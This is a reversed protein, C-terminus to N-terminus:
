GFHICCFNRYNDSNYLFANRVAFPDESDSRKEYLKAYAIKSKGYFSLLDAPKYGKGTIMNMLQPSTRKIIYAYPLQGKFRQFPNHTFFKSYVGSYKTTLLYKVFSPDLYPSRNKLFHSQMVIEPGFYKRFVEEFIFKYFLQNKDLGVHIRKYSILKDILNEICETIIDSNIYRLKPSKKIKEIWEDNEIEFYSIMEESIVVGPNHFARFLESGFNGTIIYNVREGLKKAAFKYHARGFSASGETNKIIDLGCQLSDNKIYDNDLAIPIFDIGLVVAQHSALTLDVSDPSGFSYTIFDKNLYIGSAVLTRGDFGSTFSLAANEEPFYKSSTELFKEAVGELIIRGAAPSSVYYDAIDFCKKIITQDSITIYHNSPLLKVEKYITDETIAYNFLIREILYQKNLTLKGTYDTIYEMRSSVLVNKDDEFVYVPLINFVSTLVSISRQLKNLKIIYFFGGFESVDNNFIKNILEDNKIGTLLDGIVIIKEHEANLEKRDESNGHYLFVSGNKKKLDARNMVESLQKTEEKDIKLIFNM